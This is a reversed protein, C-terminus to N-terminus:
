NLSSGNLSSGNLSSGNLSSGNLSSGNLSSGNLSSGNLSSGKTTPVGVAASASVSGGVMVAAVIATIALTRSLKRHATM